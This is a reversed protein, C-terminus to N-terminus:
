IFAAGVRRATLRDHCAYAAEIFLQAEEITRKVREMSHEAPPSSHRNFLYNAFKGGAFRDHFLQTDFFRRRFEGVVNEPDAAVDQFETKVLARAAQIMAGYALADAQVFNGNDMFVQGEFVMREAAVLDFQAASIVEGACESVGMDGM